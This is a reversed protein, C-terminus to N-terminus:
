IGNQFAVKSYKLVDTEVSIGIDPLDEINIFCLFKLRMGVSVGWEDKTYLWSMRQVCSGTVVM